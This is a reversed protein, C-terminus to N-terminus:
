VTTVDKSGCKCVSIGVRFLFWAASGSTHMKRSVNPEVRLNLSTDPDYVIERVRNTSLKDSHLGIGVVTYLGLDLGLLTALQALTVDGSQSLEVKRTAAVHSVYTHEGEVYATTDTHKAGRLGERLQVSRKLPAKLRKAKPQMAAIHEVLMGEITDGDEDSDEDVEDDRGRTQKTRAM